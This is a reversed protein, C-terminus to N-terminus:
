PQEGECKRNRRWHDLASVSGFGLEFAIEKCSAAGHRMVHYHEERCRDVYEHITMGAYLPFLRSLHAPSYGSLAALERVTSNAGHHDRIHKRLVSVIEKHVPQGAASSRMEARNWVLECCIVHIIAALEMAAIRGPIRGRSDWIANYRRVLDKMNFVYRGRVRFAGTRGSWEDFTCNVFDDYVSLWLHRGDSWDPAYVNDHLEYRDILLLTGPVAPYVAGGLSQSGSGALVLMAERKGHSHVNGRRWNEEPESQVSPREDAFLTSIIRRERGALLIETDDCNM